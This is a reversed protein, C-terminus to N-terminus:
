VEQHTKYLKQKKIYAVVPTPVLNEIDKGEKILGRIATSSINVQPGELLVLRRTIGPVAKELTTVDPQPWGPRPVAVLFCMDIIRSPERWEPFKELRDWGLIFYLEDKSDYERQLEDLTDVTYSAGPREIEVESIKYEPTRAIALRVMEVRHKAPTITISRKLQPQGAPVFLVEALGLSRRAEAAIALHGLHVPDFTAGLIGIKM